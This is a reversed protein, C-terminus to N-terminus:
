NYCFTFNQIKASVPCRRSPEAFVRFDDPWEGRARKLAIVYLEQPVPIAKGARKQVGRPAERRISVPTGESSLEILSGIARLLEVFADLMNKGTGVQDTHLSHAIWCNDARSFYIVCEDQFGSAKKRLEAKDM